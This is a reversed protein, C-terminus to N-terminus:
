AATSQAPQKAEEAELRELEALIEREREVAPVVLHLGKPKTTKRLIRVWALESQLFERKPSM